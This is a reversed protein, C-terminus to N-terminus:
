HVTLHTNSEWNVNDNNCYWYISICDIINVFYAKHKRPFQCAEYIFGRVHPHSTHTLYWCTFERSLGMSLGGNSQVALKIVPRAIIGALRRFRDTRGAFVFISNFRATKNDYRRHMLDRAFLGQAWRDWKNPDGATTWSSRGTFLRGDRGPDVTIIATLRARLMTSNM